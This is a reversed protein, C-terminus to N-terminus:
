WVKSVGDNLLFLIYMAEQETVSADNREDTLVSSYNIKDLIDSLKVPHRVINRKATKQLIPAKSRLGISKM